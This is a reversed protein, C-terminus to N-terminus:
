IHSLRVKQANDLNSCLSGTALDSSGKYKLFETPALRSNWTWGHLVKADPNAAM